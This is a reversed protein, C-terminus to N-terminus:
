FMAAVTMSIEYALFATWALTLWVGLLVASVSAARKM